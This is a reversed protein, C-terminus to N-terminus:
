RPDPNTIRFSAFTTEFDDRHDEFTTVPATATVIYTQASTAYLQQLVHM